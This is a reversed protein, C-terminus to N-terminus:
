VDWGKVMVVVGYCDAICQYYDFTVVPDHDKVGLADCIGDVIAKFALRLNEHEDLPKKGVRCLTIRYPKKHQGAYPKLANATELAARDREKKTSGSQRAWRLQKNASQVEHDKWNWAANM